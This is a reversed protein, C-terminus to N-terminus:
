ASLQALQAALDDPLESSWSVPQGTGPHDFSLRYAHLVPRTVTTGPLSRAQSYVADGVVPHGIAALHVRIQHTRGTELTATVLTSPAPQDFRQEVRYRTRAEKGKRSVSMRTPSSVSRGIPADVLGSEGEVTGLVLARYHRSVTRAGLQDVLSHYADVSRAVVMLGSTGRDLRHVIGPRDPDTGAAQGVAPLEPYRAVLGQVLTGTRHGAGPHVVLGAPKDVVILDDDDYVVEFAVSPDGEIPGPGLEEGQDVVLEQGLRLATSRSRVVTGDVRVRGSTVLDNVASRSLDAMLAVAKDVRVGDLSAPVAVTLTTM